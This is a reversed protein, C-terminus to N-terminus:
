VEMFAILQCFRLHARVIEDAANMARTCRDVEDGPKAGEANVAREICQEAEWQQELYEFIDSGGRILTLNAEKVENQKSEIIYKLKAQM